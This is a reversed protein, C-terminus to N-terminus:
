KALLLVTKNKLNVVKLVAVGVQKCISQRSEREPLLTSYNGFLGHPSYHRFYKIELGKGIKDVQLRYLDLLVSYLLYLHFVKRLM